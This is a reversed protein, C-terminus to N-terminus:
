PTTQVVAGVTGPGVHATVVTSLVATSVQTGAPLPLARVLEAVRAFVPGAAEVSEEAHMLVIEIGRGQHMQAFDEASAQLLAGLREEARGHTRVRALPVVAGERLGLVPVISLARGILSSAAGIRGGRRLYELDGPIFFARTEDHCWDEVEGVLQEPALQAGAAALQVAGALGASTTQSDIVHIRCDSDSMVEDAATRACGATGSLEGSLTVVIIAEAGATILERYRAVFDAVPPMSTSVSMGAQMATCADAPTWQSDPRDAGDVTITLEVVGFLGALEESVVQVQEETLCATSDTIVGIRM